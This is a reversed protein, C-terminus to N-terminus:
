EEEMSVIEKILKDIAINVDRELRASIQKEGKVWQTLTQTACNVQKALYTITTGHEKLFIVKECTTM